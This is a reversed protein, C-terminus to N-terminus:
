LCSLSSSDATAGATNITDIESEFDDDMVLPDGSALGLLVDCKLYATEDNANYKFADFAIATVLKNFDTDSTTVANLATQTCTGHTITVPDNGYGSDSYAICNEVSLKAWTPGSFVVNVVEGLV